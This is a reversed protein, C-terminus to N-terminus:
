FINFINIVYSTSFRPLFADLFVVLEICTTYSCVRVEQQTPKVKFLKVVQQQFDSIPMKGIFCQLRMHDDPAAMGLTIM